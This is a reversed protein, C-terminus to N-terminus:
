ADGQGPQYQGVEGHGDATVNRSARNVTRNQFVPKKYFNGQTRLEALTAQYREQKTNLTKIGARKLDDNNLVKNGHEINYVAPVQNALRAYERSKSLSILKRGAPDINKLPAYVFDKARYSAAAEGGQNVSPQALTDYSDISPQPNTISGVNMREFLKITVPSANRSGDSLSNAQTYDDM